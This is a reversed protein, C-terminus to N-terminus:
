AVARNPHDQDFMGYDGEMNEFRVFEPRFRLSVVGVPGGRQKAVSVETIGQNASKDNYGPRFFLIM